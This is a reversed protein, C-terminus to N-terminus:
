STRDVVHFDEQSAPHTATLAAGRAPHFATGGDFGYSGDIPKSRSKAHSLALNPALAL